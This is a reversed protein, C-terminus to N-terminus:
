IKALEKQPMKIKKPTVFILFTTLITLFLGLFAFANQYGVIEALFTAVIPAIVYALSTSASQLGIMENDENKLRSVYDEFTAKIEPVAVGLLISVGATVVIIGTVSNLFFYTTLLIGSLLSSILATKKKGSKQNSRGLYFGVLIAPAMYAPILLNGLAHTKSLHLTFLTGITWFGADIITIATQLLILQWVKPFLLKWIELEKKWSINRPKEQSDKNSHIVFKQKFKLIPVITLLLLVCVFLFSQKYGLTLLHTAFIPALAYASTQFAVIKGWTKTHEDIGVYSKVFQFSSFINLEYYIGWVSMALLFTLIHNPFLLYVLPFMIASLLTAKLFFYHPQNSFVKPFVVDCLIGIVSSFSFIIGMFLTSHVKSEIFIPSIYSMIGDAFSIM